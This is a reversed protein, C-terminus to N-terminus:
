KPIGYYKCVADYNHYDPPPASMRAHVGGPILIYRLSDGAMAYDFSLPNANTSEDEFLVGTASGSGGYQSLNFNNLGAAVLQSNGTIAPLIIVDMQGNIESKFYGLLVGGSNFFDTTIKPEAVFMIKETTTNELGWNTQMWSSYIVNATGAPGQAGTAGTAGAPGQAGTAGTAGNTGNNGAPGQPGTAGTAGNTGNAGAPGQSGTPGQPGAPGTKGCAAFLMASLLIIGAHRFLNMKREM